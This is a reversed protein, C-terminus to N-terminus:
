APKPEGKTIEDAIARYEHEVSSDRTVPVVGSDSLRDFASSERIHGLLRTGLNRVLERTHESESGSSRNEVVGLLYVNLRKAMSGSRFANVSAIRQPTTVLIFGDLDLLQMITLPADSTGPPLDVILYDLDGWDTNQFFDILMKTIIAGRWIIPKKMDDVVMSTSAVKIGDKMLPVLPFKSTDIREDIGIFFSLNPCDIDADLIGVRYGMASLTYALNVSVTTKGVGGKASYVGIKHRVGSLKHKITDKQSMFRDFSIRAQDAAGKGKEQANDQEAPM